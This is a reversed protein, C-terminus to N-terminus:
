IAGDKDGVPKQHLAGGFRTEDARRDRPSPPADAPSGWKRKFVTAAIVQLSAQNRESQSAHASVVVEGTGCPTSDPPAEGARPHLAGRLDRPNDEGSTRCTAIPYLLLRM